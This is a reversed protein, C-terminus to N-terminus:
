EIEAGVEGYRAALPTLNRAEDLIQQVAARRQDVDVGLHAVGGFVDDAPKAGPAEARGVGALSRRYLSRHSDTKIAEVVFVQARDAAPAQAELREFIEREMVDEAREVDGAAVRVDRDGQEHHAHNVGGAFVLGATPEPSVPSRRFQEIKVIPRESM